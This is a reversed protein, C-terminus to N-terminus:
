MGRDFSLIDDPEYRMADHRGLGGKGLSVDQPVADTIISRVGIKLKLQTTLFVLM